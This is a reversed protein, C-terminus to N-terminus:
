PHEGLAARRAAWFPTDPMADLRGLAAEPRGLVLELQVAADVLAPVSPGADVAALAEDYRHLDRLLHVLLLRDDLTAGEGLARLDDLAAEPQDLRAWLRARLARAGAHEPRAALVADLERVAAAPGTAALVMARVLALDVTDAGSSRAHQLAILAEDGRGESALARAQDLWLQPDAAREDALNAALREDAGPHAASPPLLWPWM